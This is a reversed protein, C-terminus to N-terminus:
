VIRKTPLTLHTYSVPSPEALVFVGREEFASTYVLFYDAYLMTQLFGHLDNPQTKATKLTRLDYEAATELTLRMRRAFGILRRSRVRTNNFVTHIWRTMEMVNM